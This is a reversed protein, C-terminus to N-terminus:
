KTAAVSAGCATCFKPNEGIIEEGCYVCVKPQVESIPIETTTAQMPTTSEQVTTTANPQQVTVGLYKISDTEINYDAPFNELTILEVLAKRVKDRDKGILKSLKKLSVTSYRPLTVRLLLKTKERSFYANYAIGMFLGGVFLLASNIQLTAVGIIFLLGGLIVAGVEIAEGYAFFQHLNKNFRSKAFIIDKLEPINKTVGTFELWSIITLILFVLTLISAAVEAVILDSRVTESFGLQIGITIVSSLSGMFLAIIFIPIAIHLQLNDQEMFIYNM